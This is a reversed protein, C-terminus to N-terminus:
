AIMITESHKMLEKSTPIGYRGAGTSKVRRARKQSSASVFKRRVTEVFSYKDEQNCMNTSPLSPPVLFSSPVASYGFRSSVLQKQIPALFPLFHSAHIFIDFHIPNGKEERSSKWIRVVKTGRPRGEKRGESGREGAVRQYPGEVRSVALVLVHPMRQGGGELQIVMECYTGTKKRLRVSFERLGVM